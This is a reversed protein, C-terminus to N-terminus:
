HSEKAEVGIQSLLLDWRTSIHFEISAIQDIISSDNQVIAHLSDIFSDINTNDSDSERKLLQFYYELQKHLYEQLLGTPRFVFLKTQFDQVLNKQEYSEVLMDIAELPTLESSPLIATPNLVLYEDLLSATLENSILDLVKQTPQSTAIAHQVMAQRAEREWFSSTQVPLVAETLNAVLKALERKSKYDGIYELLEIAVNQNNYFQSIIIDTAKTRVQNAHMSLAARALTGADKAGL